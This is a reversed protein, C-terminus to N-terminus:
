PTTIWMSNFEVISPTCLFTSCKDNTDIFMTTNINHAVLDGQFIDQFIKHM